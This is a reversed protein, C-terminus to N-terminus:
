HYLPEHLVAYWFIAAFRFILHLICVGPHNATKLFDTIANGSDQAPVAAPQNVVPAPRSLSKKDDGELQIKIDQEEHMQPELAM